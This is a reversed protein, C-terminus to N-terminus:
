VDNFTPQDIGSATRICLYEQMKRFSPLPVILPMKNSELVVIAIHRIGVEFEIGYFGIEDSESTSAGPKMTVIAAGYVTSM